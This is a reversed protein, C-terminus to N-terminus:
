VAEPAFLALQVQGTDYRLSIFTDILEQLAADLTRTYPIVAMIKGDIKEVRIGTATNGSLRHLLMAPPGPPTLIEWGADGLRVALPVPTQSLHQM